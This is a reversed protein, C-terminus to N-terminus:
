ASAIGGIPAKQGDLTGRTRHRGIEWYMNYTNPVHNELSPIVKWLRQVISQATPM